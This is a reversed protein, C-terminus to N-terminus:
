GAKSAVLLDEASQLLLDINQQLQEPIDPVRLANDGGGGITNIDNSAATHESCEEESREEEETKTTTEEEETVGRLAVPKMNLRPPQLLAYFPRRGDTSFDGSTEGGSNSYSLALDHLGNTSHSYSSGEPRRVIVGTLGDSCGEKGLNTTNNSQGMRLGEICAICKRPKDKTPDQRMQKLSFGTAPKYEGCMHCLVAEAATDPRVVPCVKNHEQFSMSLPFPQKCFRCVRWGGPVNLSQKGEDIRNCNSSHQQHHTMNNDVDSHRNESAHPAPGTAMMQRVPCVAAHEAYTQMHRMNCFQCRTRKVAQGACRIKTGTGANPVVACSGGSCNNDKQATTLPGLAAQGVTLGSCHQKNQPVSAPCPLTNNASLGTLHHTINSHQAYIYHHGAGWGSKVPPAISNSLATTATNGSSATPILDVFVRNSYPMGMTNTTNPLSLLVGGSNICSVSPHPIMTVRTAAAPSHPTCQPTCQPRASANAKEFTPSFTNFNPHKGIPAAMLSTGSLHNSSLLPIAHAAHHFQHHTVASVQPAAMPLAVSYSRFPANTPTAAPLPTLSMPLTAIPIAGAQPVPQRSCHPLPGPYVAATPKVHQQPYLQYHHHHHHHHHTTSSPHDCLFYKSPAVPHHAHFLPLPVTVTDKGSIGFSTM